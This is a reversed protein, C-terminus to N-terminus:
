MAHYQIPAYCYTYTHNEYTPMALLMPQVKPKKRRETQREEPGDLKEDGSCFSREVQVEMIVCSQM